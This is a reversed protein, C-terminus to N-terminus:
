RPLIIAPQMTRATINSSVLELMFTWSYTYPATLIPYIAARFEIWGVLNSRGSFPLCGPASEVESDIEDSMYQKNCPPQESQRRKFDSM